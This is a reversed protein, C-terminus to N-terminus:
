KTNVIIKESDVNSLKIKMYFYKIKKAFSIKLHYNHERARIKLYM